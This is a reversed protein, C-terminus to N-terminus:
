KQKRELASTKPHDKATTATMARLAASLARVQDTLDDVRDELEELRQSTARVRGHLLGQESATPLNLAGLASEQIRLATDRADTARHILETTLPTALVANVTGLVASQLRDLPNVEHEGTM